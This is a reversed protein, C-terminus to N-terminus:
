DILSISIEKTIKFVVLSVKALQHGRSYSRIKFEEPLNMFVADSVRTASHGLM